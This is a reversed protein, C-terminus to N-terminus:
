TPPSSRTLERFSRREGVWIPERRRDESSYSRTPFFAWTRSEPCTLVVQEHYLGEDILLRLRYGGPPLEVSCGGLRLREDVWCDNQFDVLRLGNLDVLQLGFCPNSAPGPELQRVLVTLATSEVGVGVGSNQALRKRIREISEDLDDTSLSASRLPAVTAVEPLEDALPSGVLSAVVTIVKDKETETLEHPPWYSELLKKLEAVETSKGALKKENTDAVKKGAGDFSRFHLMHDVAAVVIVSKGATPIASVNQLASMLILDCGNTGVFVAEKESGRM